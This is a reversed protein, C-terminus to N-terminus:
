SISPCVSVVSGMRRDCSRHYQWSHPNRNRSGNNFAFRPTSATFAPSLSRWFQTGQLLPIYLYPLFLATNSFLFSHFASMGLAILGKPEPPSSFSLGTCMPFTAEDKSRLDSLIERQPCIETGRSYFFMRIELSRNPFQV